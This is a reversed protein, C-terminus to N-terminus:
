ENLCSRWLLVQCNYSFNIFQHIERAQEEAFEPDLPISQRPYEELILHLKATKAM